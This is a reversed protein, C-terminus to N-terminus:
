PVYPGIFETVLSDNINIYTKYCSMSTTDLPLPGVLSHFTFTVSGIGRSVSYCVSSSTACSTTQGTWYSGNWFSMTGGFAGTVTHGGGTHTNQTPYTVSYISFSNTLGLSFFVILVLTIFKM